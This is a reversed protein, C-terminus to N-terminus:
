AGAFLDPEPQAIKALQEKAAEETEGFNRMRFEVDSMLQQMVMRLDQAIRTAKAIMADDDLTKLEEESWGNRMLWAKLPVGTNVAIRMTEAETKPQVSEVRDWICTVDDSKVEMGSLKAIFSVIDQWQAQFLLQRKKCKKVLPAEMALLAEGSLDAGTTMFYHKPTRTIIAIYNAIKDMADLYNKLDTSSFQGVASDQGVNDGAPIWWIEGPKNKLNGPDSQSIVYRQVFAGFEAAVMMDAMLKNIADQLTTVKTIEGPSALDFVPIVGFTNNESDELLFASSNEIDKKDTIWHEIRDRYYLTIESKKDARIFQKAAFRKRNPNADEYFVHCMRPDNYYLVVDEGEKWVILYAQETTLSASHAKDAELDIHLKDFIDKLKKDAKENQTKFGTLQLRDLAADVVVAMWNVDFHTEIKEFAAKLRTTSYKLPQPGDYYSFLTKLRPQKETFTKFALDLDIREPDSEVTQTISGNVIKKDLM